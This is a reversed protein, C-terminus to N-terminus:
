DNTTTNKNFIYNKNKYKQRLILASFLAVCMFHPQSTAGSMFSIFLYSVSSMKVLSSHEMVSKCKSMKFIKIMTGFWLFLGLFGYTYGIELYDNHAHSYPFGAKAMDYAVAGLGFGQLWNFPSNIFNNVLVAWWGTRGSGYYGSDNAETMDAFRNELVYGYNIYIYISIVIIGGLLLFLYKRSITGKMRQYLFPVCLVYALIATRRLSVIVALLGILFLCTSLKGKFLYFLLPLLYVMSIAVSQGGGIEGENEVALTLRNQNFSLYSINMFVSFMYIYILRADIKRRTLEMEFFVFSLCIMLTKMYKGTDIKVPIIIAVVIYLLVVISMWRMKEFYLIKSSFLSPFMLIICAGYLYKSLEYMFGSHVGYGM